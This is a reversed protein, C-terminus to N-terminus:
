MPRKNVWPRTIMAGGLFRTVFLHMLARCEENHTLILDIHEIFGLCVMFKQTWPALPSIEREVAM